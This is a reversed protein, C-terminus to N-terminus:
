KEMTWPSMVVDGHYKTYHTSLANRTKFVKMCVICSHSVELHIEAHRKAGQKTDFGKGCTLCEYKGAQGRGVMTEIVANLDLIYKDVASLSSM